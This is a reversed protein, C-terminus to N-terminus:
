GLDLYIMADGPKYVSSGQQHVEVSTIDDSVESACHDLFEMVTGYSLTFRSGGGSLRSLCRSIEDGEGVQPRAASWAILNQLLATKKRQGDLMAWVQRDLEANISALRLQREKVHSRPVAEVKMLCSLVHHELDCRKRNLTKYQETQTSSKADVECIAALIEGAVASNKEEARKLMQGEAGNKAAPVRTTERNVARNWAEVRNFGGTAPQCRWASSRPQTTSVESKITITGVETKRENPPSKASLAEVGRQEPSREDHFSDKRLVLNSRAQRHENAALRQDMSEDHNQLSPAWCKTAKSREKDRFNPTSASRSLSRNRAPYAAIRPNGPPYVETLAADQRSKAGIVNMAGEPNTKLPWQGALDDM